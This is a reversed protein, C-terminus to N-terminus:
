SSFPTTGKEPGSQSDDERIIQEVVSGLLSPDEVRRNRQGEWWFEYNAGVTRTSTGNDFEIIISSLWGGPPLDHGSEARFHVSLQAILAADTVKIKRPPNNVMSGDPLLYLDIVASKAMPMAPREGVCSVSLLGVFGTLLPVVQRLWKPM